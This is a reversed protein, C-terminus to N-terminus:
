GSSALAAADAVWGAVRSPAVGLEAATKTVDAEGLGALQAFTRVGMARLRAATRPGVGRLQTLDDVELADLRRSIRDLRMRLRALEPGEELAHVRREVAGSGQEIATLRRAVRDLQMRLRAAEAGEEVSALRREIEMWRRSRGLAEGAARVRLARLERVLDDDDGEIADVRTELSALRAEADSPLADLDEAHLPAELRARLATLAGLERTFM